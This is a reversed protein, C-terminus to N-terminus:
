HQSGTASITAWMDDAKQIQEAVTMADIDRATEELADAIWDLGAAKAEQSRWAPAMRRAKSPSMILAHGGGQLGVRFGVGRVPVMGVVVGDHQLPIGELGTSRPPASTM